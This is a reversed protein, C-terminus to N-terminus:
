NARWPSWGDVGSLIKEIAYNKAEDATIQKAWKVRAGVNAGPGTSNFEAYRATAENEVKGWNHWGEPHVHAGMECNIFAVSGTPRWPRGLYTKVDSKEFQTQGAPIKWPKPDGVLQCHLFVFGFSKDAPTSAATIYGGNKSLIECRDFVATASGYIFDVRGEIHCNTFYHRGNNVMLTDQWGVIRCNNFAARDNDVRLALAQGHDGSTNEFTLNEARFDNGAVVFGPDFQYPQNPKRDNVNYPWSLVTAQRDEGMINIFRKTKPIIVQGEYGGPKVLITFWKANNEPVSNIADQVNTHTGSGDCAVVADFKSEPALPKTNLPESRLLPAIEPVAKGLEDVVLRACLVYGKSNSHTGDLGGPNTGSAMKPPNNPAPNSAACVSTILTVGLFLNGFM